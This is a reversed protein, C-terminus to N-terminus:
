ASATYRTPSRACDPRFSRARSPGTASGPPTAAGAASGATTWASSSSASRRASGRSRSRVTSRSRSTARRGPTTSCRACRSPHSPGRSCTRVCFHTCASARAGSFGDACAGHILEPTVHREGPALELAFDFPNYGGHVHLAANPRQEFALRWSGSWALQGFYVTGHEEGAGDAPCLLFFPHHVFGTHVSRSELSTTGVPLRVRESQFEAAWGGSAHLLDWRGAPLHLTGFGLQEIQVTQAGRNELELWREIVDHALDLRLCLWASFPQVPDDLRIRLTERGDAAREIAHSVYRLRVDRVPLAGARGPFSVKLTPEHWTHDGFTVVEDRRGQRDVGIRPFPDDPLTGSAIPQEPGPPRPGSALCVVRGDPDARLAHFSTALVLNWTRTREDFHIL